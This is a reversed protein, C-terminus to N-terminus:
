PESVGAKRFRVLMLEADRKVVADTENRVVQELLPLYEPWASYSTAMVGAKRLQPLPDLIVEKIRLFFGEDYRVPSGLAARLVADFLETLGSCEDISEILEDLGWTDLHTVLRQVIHDVSSRVTGSVLVCNNRSVDDEVYHLVLDQDASWFVERSIERASDEPIEGLLPWNLEEAFKTVDVEASPHRLVLRRSRYRVSDNM